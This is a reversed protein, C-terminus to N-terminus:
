PSRLSSSRRPKSHSVQFLVSFSNSYLEGMRGLHMKVESQYVIDCNQSAQGVQQFITWLCSECECRISVQLSEGERAFMNLREGVCKCMGAIIHEVSLGEQREAELVNQLRNLDRIAAHIVDYDAEVTDAFMSFCSLEAGM